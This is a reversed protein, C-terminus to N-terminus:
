KPNLKRLPAPGEGPPHVQLKGPPVNPTPKEQNKEKERAQKKIREYHEPTVFAYGWPSYASLFSYVIMLGIVALFFKKMVM